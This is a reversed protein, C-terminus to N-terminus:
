INVLVELLSSITAIYKATAQFARQYTIMKVAEEDLNVGSVSMQQGRLSSEFAQAGEATTKSVSSGQAVDAVIRNYIIGLTEGNKSEIPMDLFNAMVQANKTDADLGGQSAAFKAPDARVAASVGMDHATTGTFFDNIGLAALVGSTDNAFAFENDTSLSDIKLGGGVQIESKLGNIGNLAAQLDDLTMDHGMGNLDVQVNTTQTLGTKKNRVLVQFSGNNPTFELGTDNLPKSSDDVTNSSTITSYGNLGQGSSYVKNFEFILTKAFNNLQDIFGGLINDRADTLGHLEGSTPDIKTDTDSLHIEAASMGSNGQYVVEVRRWNGEAVLYDGGSYVTTTGNPQEVAHIDILKALKELAQSRQDTLGVADSKSTSGGQTEAIKVNLNAIQQTLQNISGAMGQVRDNVDVRLNEVRYSMQTIDQALTQGQLVAQNRISIDEPQNLIESISNFFNNMSTSLDTDSLANLVGELQSYTQQLVDSNASDSVAGRLREQLFKDVKQVIGEVDVGTGLLLGGVKQTPAPTLTVEERLYGPTNANAINQGVVQLAIDNAQLSNGAMQISGFLSM